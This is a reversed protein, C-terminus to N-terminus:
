IFDNGKEKCFLLRIDFVNKLFIWQLYLMIRYFDGIKNLFVSCLWVDSFKRYLECELFTDLCKFIGHCHIHFIKRRSTIRTHLFLNLIQLDQFLVKLYSNKFIVWVEISQFIDYFILNELFIFIQSKHILPLERLFEDWTQYFGLNIYSFMNYYRSSNNIVIKIYNQSGCIKHM